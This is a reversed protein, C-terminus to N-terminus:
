LYYLSFLNSFGIKNCPKLNELFCWCIWNFTTMESWHCWEMWGSRIHKYICGFYAQSVLGTVLNWFRRCVDASENLTTMQQWHCETCSTILIHQHVVTSPQFKFSLLLMVGKLRDGSQCQREEPVFPAINCPKENARHGPLAKSHDQQELRAVLLQLLCLM